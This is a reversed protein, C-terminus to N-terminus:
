RGLFRRVRLTAQLMLLKNDLDKLQDDPSWGATQGAERIGQVIGIVALSATLGDANILDSMVTDSPAGGLFRNVIDDPTM